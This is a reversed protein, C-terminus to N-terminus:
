PAKISVADPVLTAVRGLPYPSKVILTTFSIVAGVTVSVSVSSSLRIVEESVTVMKAAKLSAIVAVGVIEIVPTTVLTAM